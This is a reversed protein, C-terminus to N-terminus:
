ESIIVINEASVIYTIDNITVKVIDGGASCRTVDGVVIEGNPMSIIARKSGKSVIANAQNDFIVSGALAVILGVIAIFGLVAIIIRVKM